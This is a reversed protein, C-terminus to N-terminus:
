HIEEYEIDKTSEQTFNQPQQRPAAVGCGGTGCGINLVAQLLLFGGMLGLLPQHDALANWLVIGGAALRAIRMLGWNQLNFM